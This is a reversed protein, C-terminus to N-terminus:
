RSVSSVVRHCIEDFADAAAEWSYREAVLRRSARGLEERRTADALLTTIAEAFEGPTDALLVHEGPVLPLGEAGLRTSVVAKEMSMAEFIKIRTGGGIRLPVVYVAARAIFPRVDDVTGTVQIDPWREGLRQLTPTPNRGVIWFTVRVRRRLIPMVQSVFWNIGDENAFWDMSGTFVVDYPEGDTPRPFDDPCFEAADVATPIPEVTNVDYADSIVRADEASVTIVHDYERCARAEYRQLSEWERRLALRLLPNRVHPLQRERIAAEVNHQFLIRPRFSVPLVNPSPHLFDCILLDVADHTVLDEIREQLAPNRYKAILFSESALAARAFSAVSRLSRRSSERWPVAIVRGLAEEMAAINASDTEPNSLCLVTLQHRSALERFLRLSRIKGGTNAPLLPRPTVIAIHM